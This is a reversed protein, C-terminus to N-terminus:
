LWSNRVQAGRLAREEDLVRFYGFDKGIARSPAAHGRRKALQKRRDFCHARGKEPLSFDRPDPALFCMEMCKLHQLHREFDTIGGLDREDGFYNRIKYGLRSYTDSTDGGHVRHFDAFSKRDTIMDFSDLIRRHEAPWDGGVAAVIRVSTQFSAAAAFYACSGGSVNEAKGTPTHVTDIGITGTVILSM